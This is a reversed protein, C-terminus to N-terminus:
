NKFEQRELKKLLRDVSVQKEVKDALFREQGSLNYYKDAKLMERTERAITYLLIKSIM